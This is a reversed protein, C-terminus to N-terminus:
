RQWVQLPSNHISNILAGYGVGSEIETADVLQVDLLHALRPKEMVEAYRQSLSREMASILANLASTKREVKILIHIMTPFAEGFIIDDTTAEDNYLYGAVIEDDLEGLQETLAKALGYEFYSRANTDLARLHSAAVKPSDIRMKEACYQLAADLVTHATSAADPLQFEIDRTETTQVNMTSTM